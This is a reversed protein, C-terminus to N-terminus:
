GKRAAVRKKAARRSQETLDRLYGRNTKRETHTLLAMAEEETAGAEYAETNAGARAHMMKVNAPIGAHTAIIRFYRRCQAETPPLGTRANIVLPGVRSEAPTRALDAEVEPYDAIAHVAVLATTFQTKSILKRVIGHEDIHQWTLGGRHVRKGVRIGGEATEDTIYEGIVDIRRMGFDFQTRLCRGMWAYGLEHASRCFAVSQEYTLYDYRRSPAKFRADRLEARLQTCEPIRKTSGYSLVVKLVNITYYAWAKSVSESLEKYWRRVDAATVADIRRAGKHAMLAKMTKSYSNQTTQKIEQYTSDPDSEYMRVLSAFTGDYASPASLRNDASWRLMEAHLVHCRAVLAPDEPAYHLRVSKPRYGKKVLDRRPVWYPVQSGDGRQRWTLGPAKQAAPM